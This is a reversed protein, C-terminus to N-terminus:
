ECQGTTTNCSLPAQCQGDGTKGAWTTNCNRGNVGSNNLDLQCKYVGGLNLGFDSKCCEEARGGVQWQDKFFQAVNGCCKGVLNTKLPEPQFSLFGSGNAGCCQRSNINLHQADCCYEVNGDGAPDGSATVTKCSPYCANTLVDCVPKKPDKGFEIRGCTSPRAPLCEVCVKATPDCKNKVTGDTSVFGSCDPDTTCTGRTRECTGKTTNCSQDTGCEADTTCGQATTECDGTQLNCSEDVSCGSNACHNVDPTCIQNVCKQLSQCDTDAVCEPYEDGCDLMSRLNFYLQEVSTLSSLPRTATTRVNKTPRGGLTQTKLLATGRVTQITPPLFEPPIVASPKPISACLSKRIYLNWSDDTARIGTPLAVPRANPRWNPRLRPIDLM